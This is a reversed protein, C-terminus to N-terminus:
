RLPEAPVRPRMDRDPLNIHKKKKKKKVKQKKKGKSNRFEQNTLAEQNALPHLGSM